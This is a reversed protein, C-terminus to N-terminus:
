PVLHVPPNRHTSRRIGAAVLLMLVAAVPPLSSTGGLQNCGADVGTSETVLNVTDTGDDMQAENDADREDDGGADDASTCRDDDCGRTCHDTAVVRDDECRVRLEDDFCKWGDDDTEELCFEDQPTPPSNCEGGSCGYACDHHEAAEDGSCRVRRSETQCSWGDGSQQKCYEDAEDDSEAGCLDGAVELDIDDGYYFRLMQEYNWGRTALCSEGNQSACGRNHPNDNCNDPVWGLPTMEIDCGSLGYNYTVLNETGTPDDGATGVCAQQPSGDSQEAPIAGAVYFPAVIEGNWELYEGRTSETAEFHRDTADTYDCDFVQDAQSNVVSDAGAVFLKYYAYGRAQVAQAKLAEMPANGNECAVVNPIYEDELDVDGFGDVHITCPAEELPLQIQRADQSPDAVPGGANSRNPNSAEFQCGAVTVLVVLSVLVEPLFFRWRIRLSDFHVM